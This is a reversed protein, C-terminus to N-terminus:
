RREKADTLIQLKIDWGTATEALSEVKGVSETYHLVERLQGTAIEVADESNLILSVGPFATLGPALAEIKALTEDTIRPITISSLYM